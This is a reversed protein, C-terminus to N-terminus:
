FRRQFFLVRFISRQDEYMHYEHDWALAKGEKGRKGERGGERAGEVEHVCVCVCVCTLLVFYKLAVATSKTCVWCSQLGAYNQSLLFKQLKLDFLPTDYSLLPHM